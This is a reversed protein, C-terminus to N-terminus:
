FYGGRQQERRGPRSQRTKSVPARGTGPGAPPRPTSPDRCAHPLLGPGHLLWSAAGLAGLRVGEAGSPDWSPQPLHQARPLPLGPVAGAVGCGSAPSTRCSGHLSLLLARAWGLRLNDAACIVLTLGARCGPAVGGALGWPRPFAHQPTQCQCRARDLSRVGQAPSPEKTRHGAPYCGGASALLCSLGRQWWSVPQPISSRDAADKGGWAGTGQWLGRPISPCEGKGLGGADGGQGAVTRGAQHGGGVGLTRPGLVQFPGIGCAGPSPECGQGKRCGNQPHWTGEPSM